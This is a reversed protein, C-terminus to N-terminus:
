RGQHQDRVGLGSFTLNADKLALAGWLVAILLSSTRAEVRAFLLALTWYISLVLSAIIAVRGWTRRATIVAVGAIGSAVLFAAAWWIVPIVKLAVVFSVGESYRDQDIWLLWAILGQRVFVIGLWRRDTWTM